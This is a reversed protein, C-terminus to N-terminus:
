AGDGRWAGNRALGREAGPGPEAGPEAGLETGAWAGAGRWTGNRGACRTGTGDACRTRGYLARKGPELGSGCLAGDGAGCRATVFGNGRNM